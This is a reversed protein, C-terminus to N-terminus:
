GPRCGNRPLLGEGPRGALASSHLSTPETRPVDAPADDAARPGHVRSGCHARRTPLRGGTTPTGLGPGPSALGGCHEQVGSGILMQSETSTRAAATQAAWQPASRRACGSLFIRRCHPKEAAAPPANTPSADALGSIPILVALTKRPTPSMPRPLRSPELIAEMGTMTATAYKAVRLSRRPPPASSSLSSPSLVDSCPCCTRSPSSRTERSATVTCASGYIAIRASTASSVIGAGQRPSCGTSPQIM